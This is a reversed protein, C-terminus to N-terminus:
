KLLYGFTFHSTTAPYTYFAVGYDINFRKVDFGFGLSIGSLWPREVYALEKKRLHSYGFRLNLSKGFYFEGAFNLHQFFKDVFYSKEKVQATDIVFINNEQLAPDNFRINWKQLHHAVVSFRFPLHKLKKSISLRADFPLKERVDGYKSFQFGIHQLVLTANFQKASDTYLVALDLATGASKYGGLNSNIWKSNAGVILNEKLQYSAGLQLAFEGAKIEGLDNNFEDRGAFTGYSIYKIGAATNLKPIFNKSFALYGHSIDALYIQNSWQPKWQMSKNILAPNQWSLSVDDDLTAIYIGSLATTRANPSLNLFEYTQDGGTQAITFTFTTLVLIITYFLKKM